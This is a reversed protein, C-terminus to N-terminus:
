IGSIAIATSGICAPVVSRPLGFRAITGWSEVVKKLTARPSIDPPEPLAAVVTPMLKGSRPLEGLLDVLRDLVTEVHDLRTDLSLPKAHTQSANAETSALRMRESGGSLLSCTEELDYDAAKGTQRAQAIKARILATKAGALKAWEQVRRESRGVALGIEKATM